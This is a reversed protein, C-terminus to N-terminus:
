VDELKREVSVLVFTELIDGEKIDNFNEFAIGCDTGAKVEKVDNAFHKLSALGGQHILKDDRYLRIAHAEKVIRGSEVYCGAITGIKKVKFLQKVRATGTVKEAFEPKLMGEMALKIDNIADYIIHYIKIEIKEDEALKRAQPNSRVHFGIIIASSASALTVDAETIGGVGKRVINVKVEENSLKMFSDCIAEVSGDTDAKVILNLGQIENQKIKQFLNDLNATSNYKERELRRQLRESSISRALKDNEAYNYVDGAKPVDNIGYVRAVDSPFLEMIEVGRENEMKKLRGHTAGCVISDGKRLIGNQNIITVVTGMRSDMRAEIVAGVAPVEEKATLEQMEASLTMLELLDDIGEGTKASCECWPVEGGYNELYVGNELLGSITRDVNAEPLDVKNIAIIMDVGAAKAHDIAEKTQPMVGDNAAVVIVAIDTLQAGRARMATFAAHGPTDLFTIKSGEHEIQYAGIHQTIGGSEGAVVKTSRIYDLISTKGHDVHGMITVIPPRSVDEANEFEEEDTSLIETGFEDAFTFTVEFEDCILELSEKDLRQNITVMKGMLFFKAIIDSPNIDMLKALENVSTFESVTIDRDKLHDTSQTRKEYKKKKKKSLTSKITRAAEDVDVVSYKAGKKKMSKQKAKIHRSQDGYDDAKKKKDFRKNIIPTTVLKKVDQDTKNTRPAGPRNDRPPRQGQPRDSRGQYGGRNDRPQYGRNDRNQGDRGQYGGRNDRPQYGRNDRNQGDRGQYGGRNDRPQYGRNDRNQGDRGQYGGRNDRQQYGRNDRNQGDRGQYGGRNDRPQYGRNDRNQGDRGQYGGRNDRPQYGRNDRNQGDRGQYGGRNDRPQYGRNDRNQGDRGQYGGRNDRPQYGRNDRNQGDRGQYGGRNDRPQRERRQDDRGGRQETNRSQAGFNQLYAPKDQKPPEQKKPQPKAEQKKPEEQKSVAPKEQRPAEKEVKAEVKPSETSKPRPTHLRRRDTEMMKVAKVQDDFMKRIKVAVDDEVVSMHSKVKVGVDALHKKLATTSIKLEKALEHVRSPM